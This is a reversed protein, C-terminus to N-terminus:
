FTNWLASCQHDSDFTTEVIPTPPVLSQFQDTAGSYPSWLPAGAFNPDGTKAFQTWYGIMTDSLQQQGPAFTASENFLYQLEAGHYAGLPFSAPPPPNLPANEDNFEYAYTPVYRSLAIDVNRGPCSLLLDTELASAALPASMVGPPPPFNSLPYAVNVLYQIFPNDVPLGIFSSVEAPYNPDTLPTGVYDYNGALFIRLEDHNTGIMVPVRNFAGSEIASHWSQTIVTGDIVTQPFQPIGTDILVSVPVARLCKATQDSCGVTTAFSTGLAEADALSLIAELYDQFGVFAESQVIARQFTGAALPSILQSLVCIAGASQGFITIRNRDGGFAGINRRLWGLAFQQDMVAYNANSHGEGDLAPHALFGLVGLRYNFTVVIVDGKKVLPTPDYLSGAGDSFGSGYFYLMVPFGHAPPETTPTYVNLFLCDESGSLVNNNDTQPCVSGFHTAQFLGNFHAPPQPPMWRLKGAPPAAFPIGLYKRIGSTVIGKLPGQDTVISSDAFAPMASCAVVVALIAFVLIGSLVKSQRNLAQNM